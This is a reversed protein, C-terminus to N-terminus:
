RGLLRLTPGHLSEMVCEFEHEDDEANAERAENRGESAEEM